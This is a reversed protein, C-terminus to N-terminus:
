EMKSWVTQGLFLRCSRGSIERSGFRSTWISRNLLVTRSGSTIVLQWPGRVTVDLMVANSLRYTCKIALPTQSESRTPSQCIRSLPEPPRSAIRWLRLRTPPWSFLRRRRPTRRRFSNLALTSLLFLFKPRSTKPHSSPKQRVQLFVTASCYFTAHSCRWACRRRRRARAAQLPCLAM